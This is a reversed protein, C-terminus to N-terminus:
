EAEDAADFRALASYLRAYTEARASSDAASVTISDELEGSIKRRFLRAFQRHPTPVVLQFVFLTAWLLIALVWGSTMAIGLLASLKCAKALWLLPYWSPLMLRSEPLSFGSQRGIELASRQMMFFYLEAVAAVTFGLYLLTPSDLTM